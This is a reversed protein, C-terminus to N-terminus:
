TIPAIYFFPPLRHPRRAAGEGIDGICVKTSISRTVRESGGMGDQASHSAGLMILHAYQLAPGAYQELSCKRWTRICICAADPDNSVVGCKTLM